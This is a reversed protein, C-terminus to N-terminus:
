KDGECHKRIRKAEEMDEKSLNLQQLNSKRQREKLEQKATNTDVIGNVSVGYGEYGSKTNREVTSLINFRSLLQDSLWQAAEKPLAAKGLAMQSPFVVPKSADITSFIYENWQKFSDISEITNQFCGNDSLWEGRPGQQAIKVILGIANKSVNGKEDTRICAQNSKSSGSSVNIVPRKNQFASMDLGHAFSYAQVNETYVYQVNPHSQPQGKYYYQRSIYIKQGSPSEGEDKIKQVQEQKQVAQSPTPYEFSPNLYMQNFWTGWKPMDNELINPNFTSLYEQLKNIQNEIVDQSTAIGNVSFNLDGYEYINLGNKESWGRKPIMAYLARDQGSIIVEGVKKYLTYSTPDNYKSGSNRIAVYLADADNQEKSIVVAPAYNGNAAYLYNDYSDRSILDSDMYNNQAIQDYDVTPQCLQDQIYDVFSSMSKVHKTMLWSMPVYKALKNFGKTDGSTIMAYLCLDNALNRVAESKDNLLEQWSEIFMDSSM